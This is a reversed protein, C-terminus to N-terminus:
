RRLAATNPPLAVTTDAQVGCCLSVEAPTVEPGCLCSGSGCGARGGVRGSVRARIQDQGPGARARGQDQGPGIQGQGPGVAPRATSGALHGVPFLSTDGKM